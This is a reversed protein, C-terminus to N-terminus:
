QHARVSFAKPGPELEWQSQLLIKRALHNLSYIMKVGNVCVRVSVDLRLINHKTLFEAEYKEVKSM